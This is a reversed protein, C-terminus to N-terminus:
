WPETLVRLAQESWVRGSRHVDRRVVTCRRCRTRAGSAPHDWEGTPWHRRLPSWEWGTSMATPEVGWEIRVVISDVGVPYRAM